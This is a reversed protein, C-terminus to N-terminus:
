LGIEKSSLKCNLMEEPSVDVQLKLVSVKFWMKTSTYIQTDSVALFKEKEQHQYSGHYQKKYKM